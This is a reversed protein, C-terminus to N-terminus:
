TGSAYCSLRVTKDAMLLTDTVFTRHGRPKRVIDAPCLISMQMAPHKLQSPTLNRLENMLRKRTYPFGPLRAANRWHTRSAHWHM